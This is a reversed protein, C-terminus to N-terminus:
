SFSKLIKLLNYKRGKTIGEFPVGLSMLLDHASQSSPLHLFEKAERNGIRPQVLLCYDRLAEIHDNKSRHSCHPCNWYKRKKEMAFGGCALCCVGTQLESQAIGYQALVDPDLPTNNRILQSTIKRLEAMTLVANRYRAALNVITEVLRTDRIVEQLCAQNDPSTQLLTRSNPIVVVSDIPPKGWKHNALWTMLQFAQRKVQRVPDPFVEEEGNKTRIMQDFMPDFYLSGSFNKVEIILFFYPHLILTDIQFYSKKDHLRLDHLILFDDQALFRLHYDLSQEGKFGAALRLQDQKIEEWKLHEPPLRRLLAELKLLKLPKDREKRIM